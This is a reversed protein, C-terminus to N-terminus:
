DPHEKTAVSSIILCLFFIFPADRSARKVKKVYGLPFHIIYRFHYSFSRFDYFISKWLYGNIRQKVLMCSYLLSYFHKSLLLLLLITMGASIVFRFLLRCLAVVTLILSFVFGMVQKRPFLEKM